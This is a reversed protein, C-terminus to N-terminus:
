HVKVDIMKPKAKETKPITLRLVGDKYNAEVADVDIEDPLSFRREFKGYTSEVRHWQEDESAEQMKKEGKITLVSEEVTVSVDEKEVGPLETQVLYQTGSEQIDVSPVWAKAGQKDQGDAPVAYRNVMQNFEKFPDWVVTKM